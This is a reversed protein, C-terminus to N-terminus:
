GILLIGITRFSRVLSVDDALHEGGSPGVLKDDRPEFSVRGENNTKHGGEALLRADSIETRLLRVHGGRM